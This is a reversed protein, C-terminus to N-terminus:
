EPPGDGSESAPMDVDHAIWRLDGFLDELERLPGSSWSRFM